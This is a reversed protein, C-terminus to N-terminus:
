EKEPFYNTWTEPNFGVLLTGSLDIIPRRILSPYAQMLEIADKTDKLKEKQDNSLNRWTSGQRNILKEWGCENCWQGLTKADIGKIKYNHFPIHVGREALWAFAKTMTSCNKIGYIMIEEKINYELMGKNLNLRTTQSYSRNSNEIQYPAHTSKFSSTQNM